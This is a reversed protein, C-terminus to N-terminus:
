ADTDPLECVKGWEPPAKEDGGRSTNEDALTSIGYERLTRRWHSPSYTMVTM